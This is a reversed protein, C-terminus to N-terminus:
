GTILASPLHDVRNMYRISVYDAEFSIRCIGTNSLRFWIQPLGPYREPSSWDIGTLTVLLSQFFGAHTVIAVHDDSRGHQALLRAWVRRARPLSEEVSEPPRNWWGVEGLEDPLVLRPFQQLLEARNPGEVGVREDTDPDLTHLGGREHIDPWAHVTLGTRESIYGATAIARVMLSAYLHTLNFGGRDHHHAYRSLEPDPDGEVLFDALMQAQLHGVETIQPDPKREGDRSNRYATWLANNQSEAHRIIYLEM